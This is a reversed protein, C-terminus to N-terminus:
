YNGGEAFIDWGSAVPVSLACHITYDGTCVLGRSEETNRSYIRPLPVEIGNPANLANNGTSGVMANDLTTMADIAPLPVEFLLRYDTSSSATPLGGYLRLVSAVNAGLPVARISWLLGGFTGFTGLSVPSETTLKRPAVQTILRANWSIIDKTYVPQTNPLSSM